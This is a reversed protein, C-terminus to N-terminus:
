TIKTVIRKHPYKPEPVIYKSSAEYAEVDAPAIRWLRGFKHGVLEGQRLKDNVFSTSTNLRQAVQKITLYASEM